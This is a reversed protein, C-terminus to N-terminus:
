EEKEGARDLTILKFNECSKEDPWRTPAGEGFCECHRAGYPIALLAIPQKLWHECHDCRKMKEEPPKSIILRLIDVILLSIKEWLDKMFQEFYKKQKDM